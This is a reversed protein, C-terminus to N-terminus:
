DTWESALNSVTRRWPVEFALAPSRITIRRHLASRVDHLLSRLDLTLQMACPKAPGWLPERSVVRHKCGPTLAIPTTEEKAAM